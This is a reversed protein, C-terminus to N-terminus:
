SSLMKDLAELDKKRSEIQALLEAEKHADSVGMSKTCDHSSMCVFFDAATRKDEFQARLPAAPFM